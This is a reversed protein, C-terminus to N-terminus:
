GEGITQKAWTLLSSIEGGITNTDGQIQWCGDSNISLYGGSHELAKQVMELDSSQSDSVIAYIGKEFKWLGDSFAGEEDALTVDYRGVFIVKWDRETHIHRWIQGVKVEM